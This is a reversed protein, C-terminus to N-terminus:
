FFFFSYINLLEQPLINRDYASYIYNKKFKNNKKGKNYKSNFKTNFKKIKEENIFKKNIFFNIKNNAYISYKTPGKGKTTDTEYLINQMSSAFYNFKQLSYLSYFYFRLKMKNFFSLPYNKKYNEMFNYSKKQMKRKKYNLFSWYKKKNIKKNIKKPIRKNIKKNIKKPIRKNIKKPIKKSIRKNIKKPIKKNIKKPIRKFIRKINIKKNIKKPIKKNIKKPIRKLIRKPTRKLVRKPMRKFIRKPIRKFIRKPIRKNIKKPIRKPIRKNYLNKKQLLYNNLANFKYIKIKNKFYNNKQFNIINKYINKKKKYYISPDNYKILNTNKKKKKKKKKNRKKFIQKKKKKSKLELFYRYKFFKYLFYKVKKKFSLVEGVVLNYNSSYVPKLNALIFGHNIWQRITRISWFLNSRLLIADVRTEVINAISKKYSSELLESKKVMRKLQKKNINTFYRRFKLNLHIAKAELTRFFFRKKKFFRSSIDLYRPNIRNLYSMRMIYLFKVLKTKKRKFYFSGWMDENYTKYVKFRNLRKSM